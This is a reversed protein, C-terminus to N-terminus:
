QKRIDLSYFREIEEQKAELYKMPITTNVFVTRTKGTKLDKVDHMNYYITDERVAKTELQQFGLRNFLLIEEQLTIVDYADRLSYGNGSIVVTKVLGERMWELFKPDGFREDERALSLAQMVVALNALHDHLVSKYAFLATDVREPDEDHLAIYALSNLEKLAEEGIPDYQRTRSYFSRFQMFDFRKPKNKLADRVMGNYYPNVMYSRQYDTPKVAEQAHAFSPLIAVFVVALLFFFRTM